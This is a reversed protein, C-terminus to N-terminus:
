EQALPRNVKPPRTLSDMIVRKCMRMILWFEWAPSRGAACIRLAKLLERVNRVPYIEFDMLDSWNPTWEDFQKREATEMLQYCMEFKDDDWSGVVLLGEPLMEGEDRFRRYVSDENKFREIVLYLTKLM